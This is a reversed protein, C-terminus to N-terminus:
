SQRAAIRYLILYGILDKITDDGPFEHGARLRSLKDEIRVLLRERVPLKSFIGVPEFVSNGYAKNKAVLMACLSNCEEEIAKAATPRYAPAAVPEVPELPGDDGSYHAYCSGSEDEVVYTVCRGRSEGTSQIVGVVSRDFFNDWYRVHDGPKM